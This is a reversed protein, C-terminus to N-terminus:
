CLKKYKFRQMMGVGHPGMEIDERSYEEGCPHVSKHVGSSWDSTTTLDYVYGEFVVLCKNQESYANEVEEMSICDEDGNPCGSALVLFFLLSSIILIKWSM